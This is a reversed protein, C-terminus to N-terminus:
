GEILPQAILVPAIVELRLRLVGGTIVLAERGTAGM